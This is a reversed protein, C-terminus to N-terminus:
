EYKIEQIVSLKRSRILIPLTAFLVIVLSVAYILPLSSYDLTISLPMGISKSLGSILKLGFISYVSTIVMAWTVSAISEYFLIRTRGANEMGISSLVAFEGKRQLFSISVNNVIGLAAIIIAMYSFISLAKVMMKNNEVNNDCMEDRTIASAGVKRLTPKLTKVAERPATDSRFTITNASNIGYLEKLTDLKILIFYGNNFLRGDVIGSIKVSKKIGNCTLEITDGVKNKLKKELATTLIIGNTDKNFDSIYNSYDKSDLKLYRNYETYTDINTGIINLSIDNASATNGITGQQNNILNIDKESIGMSKLKNVMYDATSEKENGRLTSINSLEVDFDLQTYAQTVVRIMSSGLSSITIISALSIIILTINGLLIKSTRLNNIAYILNRSKGKLLHYLGRSLIDILKPYALIVGTLSAILVVASFGGLKSKLTIFLILSLLLLFSGCIFKKWGITKLIRVDNLIVDKVQLRSIRHVPIIVSLFSLIVAFLCGKILYAPEITVAGYIGYDKLPSIMRTIIHLSVVGLLCGLIAGCIGYLLSEMYLIFKVKGATAGQSLFTGIASLRETIILKFSSYIIISSMVVVIILMVYLISEMGAFQEKVAAEDFLKDATFSSNGKNFQDIGDQVTKGSSLALILNYKGTANFDKSLYEYPLIVSFSDKKDNYFVGSPASIATIQFQETKGAIVLELTDGTKLNHKAATRESIICSNHFFGSLSGEILKYGTIYKQERGIVTINLMAEDDTGTKDPMMGNVYLEKIISDKQIGQLKLGKDSYFPQSKDTSTILIEKNEYSELQPGALTDLIIDMMGTSAVLLATSISIAILLLLFRGKKETMSKLVYKLFVKM